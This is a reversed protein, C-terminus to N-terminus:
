LGLSQRIKSSKYKKPNMRAGIRVVRASIGKRAMWEELEGVNIKQDYGFAVVGPKYRGIIRYRDSPKGLKQGLVAKDVVRLSAVMRLRDQEGFVPKKRKLLKVSEDRAVIVVLREGLRRARELYLLHGPHLIDFAGFALVTKM